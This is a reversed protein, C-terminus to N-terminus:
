AIPELDDITDVIESDRVEIAPHREGTTPQAKITVDVYVDLAAAVDALTGLSPVSTNSAAFLRAVVPRSVGIRRAIEANTIGRSEAIDELQKLLRSRAILKALDREFAAREEDGRHHDALHKAWVASSDNRKM